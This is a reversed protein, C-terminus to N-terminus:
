NLDHFLPPHLLFISTQLSTISFASLFLGGPLHLHLHTSVWHSLLIRIPDQPKLYSILQQLRPLSGESKMVRHPIEQSASCSYSYTGHQQTTTGETNAGLPTEVCEATTSWRKPSPSAVAKSPPSQSM